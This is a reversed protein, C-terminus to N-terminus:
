TTASAISCVVMVTSSTRRSSSHRPSATPSSNAAGTKATQRRCASLEPREFAPRDITSSSLVPRRDRALMPSHSLPYYIGGVPAPSPLRQPSPAMTVPFSGAMRRNRRSVILDGLQYRLSPRLNCSPPATANRGSSSPPTNSALATSRQNRPRQGTPALVPIETTGIAEDYLNPWEHRSSTGTQEARVWEARQRRSGRMLTSWANALRRDGPRACRHRCRARRHRVRREPGDRRASAGGVRHAPDEIGDAPPKLPSVMELPLPKRPFPTVDILSCAWRGVTEHPVRGVFRCQDSIGLGPSTFSHRCTRSCRGTASSCDRDAQVHAEDSPSPMSSITSGRTVIVDDLRRFRRRVHRRHDLEAEAVSVTSAPSIARRRGHNPALTIKSEDVGRRVLEDRLGASPPETPPSRRRRRTPRTPPLHRQRGLGTRVDRDASRGCNPGRLDVIFRCRVLPPPPPM